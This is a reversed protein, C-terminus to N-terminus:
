YIPPKPKEIPQYHTANELWYKKAEVQQKETPANIWKGSIIGFNKDIILCTVNDEPFDDESELKIWGNNTEIGQLAIPRFVLVTNDVEDFDLFTKREFDICDLLTGKENVLYKPHIFGNNTLAQEQAEKPLQEWYELYSEKIVEEKTM